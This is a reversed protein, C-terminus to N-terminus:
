KEPNTQLSLDFLMPNQNQNPLVNKERLVIRRRMKTARRSFVEFITAFEANETKRYSEGLRNGSCYYIIHTVAAKDVSLNVAFFEHQIFRYLKLLSHLLVACPSLIAFM